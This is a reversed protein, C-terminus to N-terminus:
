YSLAHDGVRALIDQNVVEAPRNGDVSEIRGVYFSLLAETHRQYVDMRRRIVDVTDDARGRRIAREVLVQNPARLLVVADIGATGEMAADLWNAQDFTRPFGDLLFGGRCDDQQLRDALMAQPISDPGLDCADLDAQAQKGLHTHQELNARFLDGTSIHPIGWRPALMAAQTGKGVGQPGFMLIRM